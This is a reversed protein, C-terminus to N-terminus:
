MLREAAASAPKTRSPCATLPPLEQRGQMAVGMGRLSLYGLGSGLSAAAGCLSAADSASADRALLLPAILFFGCGVVMLATAWLLNFCMIAGGVTALPRCLPRWGLYLLHVLPGAGLMEMLYLCGAARLARRRVALWRATLEITSLLALFPALQYGRSVSFAVVGRFQRVYDFAAPALRPALSQVLLVAHFTEFLEFAALCRLVTAPLPTDPEGIAAHAIQVSAIGLCTCIGGVVTTYRLSLPWAHPPSLPSSPDDAPLPHM